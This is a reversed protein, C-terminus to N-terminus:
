GGDRWWFTDPNFIGFHAGPDWNYVAEDPVNVLGPKVAVPQPVGAVLGLTYVGESWIELMEEWIARREATEPVTRWREFLEFLRKPGEMDIAAGADGKTEYYQGWKPWQYHIQSTPAYAGPSMEATPLGNEIGKAITM